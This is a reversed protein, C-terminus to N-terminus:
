ITECQSFFDSHHVTLKALQKNFWNDTWSPVIRLDYEIICFNVPVIVLPELFTHLCKIANACSRDYNCYVASTIYCSYWPLILAAMIQHVSHRSLVAETSIPHFPILSFPQIALSLLVLLLLAFLLHFLHFFLPTTM